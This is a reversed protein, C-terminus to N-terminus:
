TPTTPILRSMRGCPPAIPSAWPGFSATDCDALPTGATGRDGSVADATASLHSTSLNLIRGFSYSAECEVTVRVRNFRAPDNGIAAISVVPAAIRGGCLGSITTANAAAIGRAVEEASPSAVCGDFTANPCGGVHWTGALAGADAAAQLQGRILFFMGADVVMALAGVVAVLAVAALVLTQGPQRHRLRSRV